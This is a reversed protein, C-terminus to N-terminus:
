LAACPVQSVVCSSGFRVAANSAFSAGIVQLAMVCCDAPKRLCPRRIDACMKVLNCTNSLRQLAMTAEQPRELMTETATGGM